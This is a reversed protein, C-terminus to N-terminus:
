LNCLWMRCNRYEAPNVMIFKIGLQIYYVQKCSQKVQQAHLEPAPVAKNIGMM